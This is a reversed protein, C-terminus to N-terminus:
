KTATLALQRRNSPVFEAVEEQDFPERNIEASIVEFLQSAIEKSEVTRMPQFEDALPEEDSWILPADLNQIERRLEEQLQKVPIDFVLSRSILADIPPVEGKRQTRLLDGTLAGWLGLLILAFAGGVVQWRHLPIWIPPINVKKNRRQQILKMRLNPWFAEWLESSPYEVPLSSSLQITKEFAALTKRCHACNDLHSELQHAKETNLTGDIYELLLREVSKCKM